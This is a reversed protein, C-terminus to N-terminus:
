SNLSARPTIGDADEVDEDAGREVLFDYLSTEESPLAAAFHLATVGDADRATVDAKAEDVLFRVVDEHGSDAAIMLATMGEDTTADASTGSSLAERVGDVDGVRACAFIAEEPVAEPATPQSVRPAMSEATGDSRSLGSGASGAASASPSAGGGDSSSGVTAAFSPVLECVLRVYAAKADDSSLHSVDKWADWKTKAVIATAGTPRETTVAGHNAVKFLGYLALQQQQDNVDAGAVAAVAADFHSALAPASGAAEKATGAHEGREQLGRLDFRAADREGEARVRKRREATVKGSMHMHMAAAGAALGALAALLTGKKFRLM